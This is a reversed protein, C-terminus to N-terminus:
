GCLREGPVCGTSPEKGGPERPPTRESIFLVSTLVSLAEARGNIMDLFATDFHEPGQAEVSQFRLGLARAAANAEELIQTQTQEPYDRHWLVAVQAVDPLAQKIMELEKGVVEPSMASLGTVNGGPRAISTVLKSTVPDAVGAFVIPITSTEHKAALAAITNAAVIVDVKLEVLESMISPFRDLNGEASRFEIM